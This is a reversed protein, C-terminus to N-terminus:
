TVKQYVVLFFGNDPTSTFDHPRENGSLDYCITLQDKTREYITQFTRGKNPGETAIVNMAKPTQTPDLMINGTDSQGDIVTSYLNGDIMLEMTKLADDEFEVGNLKASVPKWTGSINVHDGDNSNPKM